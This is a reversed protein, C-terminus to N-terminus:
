QKKRGLRQAPLQSGRPHHDRRPAALPRPHGHRRPRQRDAQGWDELSAAPGGAPLFLEFPSRSSGGMPPAAADFSLVAKGFFSLHGILVGLDSTAKSGGRSVQLVTTDARGRFDNGRAGGNVIPAVRGFDVQAQEGPACEMRRFPLPGTKGLRRLYRKVSDYSGAFGHEAQLDQWIRVGSLGESLKVEIVERFPRCSSAPGSGARSRCAGGHRARGGPGPPPNTTCNSGGGGRALHRRVTTRSVGLERAIRRQSWGRKHLTLISSVVAMKLQNAV